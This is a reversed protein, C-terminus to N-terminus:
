FVNAGWSLSGKCGYNGIGFIKGHRFEVYIM